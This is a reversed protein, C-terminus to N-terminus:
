YGLSLRAAALAHINASDLIPVKFNQNKLFLGLETCGLIIAEAGNLCLDDVANRFVMLSQEDIINHCLKNSIEFHLSAALDERQQVIEIQLDALSSAYLGVTVTQATGLIGIRKWAHKRIQALVSDVIHLIPIAPKLNTKILAIHATNCALVAFDAGAYKLFEFKNKLNLSVLQWDVDEGLLSIDSLSYSYLIIRASNKYGSNISIFENISSYYIQTSVWSLGGIIGITKM